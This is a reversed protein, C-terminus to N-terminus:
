CMKHRDGPAQRESEPGQRCLLLKELFLFSFIMVEMNIELDLIFIVLIM